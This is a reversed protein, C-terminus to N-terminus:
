QQKRRYTNGAKWSHDVENKKKSTLFVAMRIRKKQLKNGNEM